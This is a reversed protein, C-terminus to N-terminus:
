PRSRRTDNRIAHIFADADDADDADLKADRPRENERLEPARVDAERADIRVHPHEARVDRRALARERLGPSVADVWARVRPAEALEAALRTREEDSGSAYAALM